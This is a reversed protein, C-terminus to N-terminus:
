FASARPAVIFFYLSYPESLHANDRKSGLGSYGLPRPTILNAQSLTLPQRESVQILIPDWSQLLQFM